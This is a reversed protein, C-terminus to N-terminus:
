LNEKQQQQQKNVIFKIKKKPKNIVSIIKHMWFNTLFVTVSEFLLCSNKFLAQSLYLM